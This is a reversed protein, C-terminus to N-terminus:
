LITIASSTGESNTDRALRWKGNHEKRLITLTYGYKKIPKSGVKSIKVELYNRVYAWDGLVKIEKIESKGDIKMDKIEKSATEFAEKGFPEQGPVM